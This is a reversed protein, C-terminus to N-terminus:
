SLKTGTRFNQALIEATLQCFRFPTSKAKHLIRFCTYRRALILPKWYKPRVSGFTVGQTDNLHQPAYKRSLVNKFSVRIQPLRCGFVQTDTDHIQSRQMTRQINLVNQHFLGTYPNDSRMCSGHCIAHRWVVCTSKPGSRCCCDDSSCFLWPNPVLAGHPHHLYSPVENLSWQSAKGSLKASLAIM